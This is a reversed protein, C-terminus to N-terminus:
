NGFPLATVRVNLVRGHSVATLETGPETFGRRIMALAMHAHLRPSFTASTIKGVAKEASRLELGPALDESAIVGSLLQRTQGSMKMRSIVEQGIYCGKDYDIARNELRAEPPIIEPTLERGWRPVGNEIRLTELANPQLFQFQAELMARVRPADAPGSWLDWGAACFRRSNLCFETGPIQPQTPGLVHFLAFEDTADDIIVDDAIIYRALRAPLAKRQEEDTDIWIADPTAFVFLHADLHGKSNLVCSEQTTNVNLKRVDTTTQGNM